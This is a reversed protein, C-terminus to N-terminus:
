QTIQPRIHQLGTPWCFFWQKTCFAAKTQLRLTSTLAWLSSWLTRSVGVNCMPDPSQMATCPAPGHGQMEAATPDRCGEHAWRKKPPPPRATNACPANRRTSCFPRQQTYEAQLFFPIELTLVVRSAKWLASVVSLKSGKFGWLFSYASHMVLILITLYFVEFNTYHSTRSYSTSLERKFVKLWYLAWWM